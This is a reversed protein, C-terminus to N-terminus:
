ARGCIDAGTPDDFGVVSLDRPIVYGSREAELLM